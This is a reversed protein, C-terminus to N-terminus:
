TSRRVDLTKQGYKPLTDIHQIIVEIISGSIRRDLPSSDAKEKIIVRAVAAGRSHYCVQVPLRKLFVMDAIIQRHEILDIGIKHIGKEWGFKAQTKLPVLLNCSQLNIGGDAETFLYLYENKGLVIGTQFPRGKETTCADDTM